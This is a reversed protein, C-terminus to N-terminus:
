VKKDIPKLNAKKMAKKVAKVRETPVIMEGKKLKYTTNTPKSVIGGTHARPIALMMHAPKPVTHKKGDNDIVVDPEEYVNNPNFVVVANRMNVIEEPHHLVM